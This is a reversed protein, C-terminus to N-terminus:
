HRPCCAAQLDRGPKKPSIQPAMRHRGFAMGSLLAGTDCFKAVAILWLAMVLGTRPHPSEILITRSLYHLMFPVYVVGFVSWGLAEMRHQADREGLIRISFVIVTLALLEAPGAHPDLYLPCLTMAAGLVIGFRNFPVIGSRAVMAYFEYLTLASIVTIMWVGGVAGFWHLAALVIAWLALTSLVRKLM